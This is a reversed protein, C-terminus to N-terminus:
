KNKLTKMTKTFQLTEPSRIGEKTIFIKKIKDDNYIKKNKKPMNYFIEHKANIGFTKGDVLAFLDNYGNTIFDCNASALYSKRTKVAEFGSNEKLLTAVRLVSDDYFALLEDKISPVNIIKALDQKLLYDYIDNCQIPWKQQEINNLVYQKWIFLTLVSSIDSAYNIEQETFNEKIKRKSLKSLYENIIEEILIIYNNSLKTNYLYNEDSFSYTPIIFDTLTKTEVDCNSTGIIKTKNLFDEDFVDYQITFKLFDNFESLSVYPEYGQTIKQKLYIAILDDYSIKININHM